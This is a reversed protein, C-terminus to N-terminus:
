VPRAPEHVSIRHMERRAGSYDNLAYHLVCRNDWIGLDNTAWRYRCAFEGRTAHAWLFDLLPWSEEATMDVFRHTFGRNVYLSQRGTEPHTRM